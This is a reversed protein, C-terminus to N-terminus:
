GAFELISPPLTHETCTVSGADRAQSCGRRVCQPEGPALRPVKGVVEGTRTNVLGQGPVAVPATWGVHEAPDTNGRNIVQEEKGTEPDHEQHESNFSSGENDLARGTGDQGTGTNRTVDNLSNRAPAQDCWKPLCESHEGIKHKRMRQMRIRTKEANERVSPPPVHDAIQNVTVTGEGITVLGCDNLNRVAKDPDPHDSCRRADIVRLVGDVKATRSCFQIMALYHWRDAFDLNAFVTSDTWLDDLRTWTM